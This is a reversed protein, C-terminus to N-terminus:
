EQGTLLQPVEGFFAEVTATAERRLIAAKSRNREFRQDLSRFRELDVNQKLKDVTRKARNFRGAGVWRALLVSGGIWAVLGVGGGIVRLVSGVAGGDGMFFGILSLVLPLACGGFGLSIQITRILCTNRQSLEQCVRAAEDLNRGNEFNNLYYTCDPLQSAALVADSAEAKESAPLQEFLRQINTRILKRTDAVYEKDSLEQFLEPVIRSENLRGELVMLAGAVIRSPVEGERELIGEAAQKYQFIQNRWRAIFAEILAAAAGQARMQELQSANALGMGLAGASLLTNLWGM